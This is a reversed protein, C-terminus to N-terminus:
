RIRKISESYVKSNTAGVFLATPLFLATEWEQTKISVIRSKVQSKLYYKICPKFEKLSKTASLIEYTIALRRQKNSSTDIEFDILKDLFMARRMPPLYHLNLGIFGDSGLSLAIILPFRDYYQLRDKTLPDYFFHYLKGAEFSGKRNRESVIEKAIDAPSGLKKIENNFWAYSERSLFELDLATKRKALETLKSAM